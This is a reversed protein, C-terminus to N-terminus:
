EISLTPLWSVTFVLLWILCSLRAGFGGTTVPVVGVPLVAEGMLSNLFSSKGAKFQGLVAVDIPSNENLLKEAAELSRSLSVLHFRECADRILALEPYSKQSNDASM